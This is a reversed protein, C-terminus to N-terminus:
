PKAIVYLVPNASGSFTFASVLVEDGPQVGILRLALHIGATGSVLASAHSVGVYEAMEREFADVQPGLPAIWNSAFTDKVFELEEGSMHPPSLYIRPLVPKDM